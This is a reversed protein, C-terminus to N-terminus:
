KGSIRCQLRAVMGGGFFLCFFSATQAVFGLPQGAFIAVLGGCIIFACGAAAPLWRSRQEFKDCLLAGLRCFYVIGTVQALLGLFSLVTIGM